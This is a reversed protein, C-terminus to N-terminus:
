CYIVRGDKNTDFQKLWRTIFRPMYAENYDYRTTMYTKMENATIERDKNTDPNSYGNRTYDCRPRTTTTTRRTTRTTTTELRCNPPNGRYHLKCHCVAEHNSM